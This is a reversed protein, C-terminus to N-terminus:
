ALLVEVARGRGDKTVHFPRGETVYQTDPPIGLAHYITAHVDTVSVPNEIPVMPHRDATRGYVFGPKFGGGFFLMCNASSFHGHFGYMKENEVILEEGSQQEAFGIPEVGAKPQNAITRGFESAVVVLTRALLGRQELDRILQAVPGDIQKKM